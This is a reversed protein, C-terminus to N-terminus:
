VSDPTLVTSENGMESDPVVLTAIFDEGVEQLRMYATESDSTDIHDVNDLFGCKRLIFLDDDNFFCTALLEEVAFALSWAEEERFLIACAQLFNAEAPLLLSSSHYSTRYYNGEQYLSLDFDLFTRVFADAAPANRPDLFLIQRFREQLSGWEIVQCTRGIFRRLDVLISRLDHFYLNWRRIASELQTTEDNTDPLSGTLKQRKPTAEDDNSSSPISYGIAYASSDVVLGSTTIPTGDPIRDRHISTLPHQRVFEEYLATPFDYDDSEDDSSDPDSSISELSPLSDTSSAPSVSPHTPKTSLATYDPQMLLGHEDFTLAPLPTFPYHSRTWDMNALFSNYLLFRALRGNIHSNIRLIWETNYAILESKAREVPTWPHKDRQKYLDVAGGPKRGFSIVGNYERIPRCSLLPPIYQMGWCKDTQVPTLHNSIPSPPPTSPEPGQRIVDNSNQDLYETEDEQSWMLEPDYDDFTQEEEDKWPVPSQPPRLAPDYDSSLVPSQSRITIGTPLPKEGNRGFLLSTFEDAQLLKPDIAPTPVRVSFIHTRRRPDPTPSLIRQPTVPSEEEGPTLSDRMPSITDRAARAISGLTSLFPQFPSRPLPEVLPLPTRRARLEPSPPYQLEQDYPPIDDSSMSDLSLSDSSSSNIDTMPEYQTRTRPRGREIPRYVVRDDEGVPELPMLPARVRLIPTGTSRPAPLTSDPLPPPTQVPQSPFSPLHMGEDSTENLHASSVSVSAPEVPHEPYPAPRSPQNEKDEDDETDYDADYVGEIDTGDFSLPLFPSFPFSRNAFPPATFSRDIISFRLSPNLPALSLSELHNEYSNTVSDCAQMLQERITANPRLPIPAAIPRPVPDGPVANGDGAHPDFAPHPGGQVPTTATGTRRPPSADPLYEIYLIKNVDIDWGVREWNAPLPSVLELTFYHTRVVVQPHRQNREMIVNLLEIGIDRTHGEVPPNDYVPPPNNPTGRLVLQTDALHDHNRASLNLQPLLYALEPRISIAHMPHESAMRDTPAYQATASEMTAISPLITALAFPTAPQSFPLGTEPNHLDINAGFHAFDYSIHGDADISVGVFHSQPSTIVCPNADVGGGRAWQRNIARAGALLIAYTQHRPLTTLSENPPALRGYSNYNLLQVMERRQAANLITATTEQCPRTLLARGTMPDDQPPNIEVPPLPILNALPSNPMVRLTPYPVLTRTSLQTPLCSSPLRSNLFARLNDFDPRLINPLGTGKYWPHTMVVQTSRTALWSLFALGFHCISVTLYIFFFFDIVLQEAIEKPKEAERMFHDSTRPRNTDQVRLTSTAGLQSARPVEFAELPGDLQELVTESETREALSNQRYCMFARFNRTEAETLIETQVLLEYKPELTKPDKFILYTGDKREDIGVFNQRQWRRGLLLDFPVQNGSVYLNAVTKVGGCYMRVRDVRGHLTSEGGNADNMQITRTIDTPQLLVREAVGQRIVELQSGTDMIAVVPHGSIEMCIKILIGDEDSWPYEAVHATVTRRDRTLMVAKQVKPKMKDSLAARFERSADCLQGFTTVFPMEWCRSVLDKLDPTKKTPLTRQAEHKPVAEPSIVHKKEKRQLVPSEASRIGPPGRRAKGSKLPEADPMDVDERDEQALKRPKRADVPRQPPLDEMPDKKKNASENKRPPIVRPSPAAVEETGKDIKTTRARERSRLNDEADTTTKKVASKEKKKGKRTKKKRLREKLKKKWKLDDESDSDDSDSSSSSDSDSESSNDSNSDYSRFNKFGFGKADLLNAPFQDRQFYEEAATSIDAMAPANRKDRKPKNVDIYTRLEDRLTKHIGMWFYGDKDADSLRSSGMNGCISNYKRYYRKWEELTYLAKRASKRAFATLDAPQYKQDVKEADYFKWIEARLEKWDPTKYHKSSKVFETVETSCYELILECREQDDIVNYKKLLKDYTRLFLDVESYKGRFIRPAEKSHRAPMDLATRPLSYSM